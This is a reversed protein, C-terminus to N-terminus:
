ELRDKYKTYLFNILLLLGGVGMFVLGKAMWGSKALDYVFLRVLSAAIGVMAMHRFHKERLIVGLVFILFCELVLLLTLASRDFATYLYLFFAVSIFLPYHIWLNMKKDIDGPLSSLPELMKPFKVEKLFPMKHILIIYIFQLVIALGGIFGMRQHWQLVEGQTYGKMLPVSIIFVCSAWYLLLSYFRMRSLDVRGVRGALMCFLAMVIWILPYWRQQVDIVITLVTFIFVLELFLPRLHVTIISSDKREPVNRFTWYLFVVIAFAVAVIRLPVNGFYEVTKMHVM